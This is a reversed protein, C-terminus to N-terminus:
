AANFCEFPRNDPRFPYQKMTLRHRRTGLSARPPCALPAGDVAGFNYKEVRVIACASFGLFMRSEGFDPQKAFGFAGDGEDGERAAHLMVRLQPLQVLSQPDLRIGALEDRKPRINGDWPCRSRAEVHLARTPKCNDIRISFQRSPRM